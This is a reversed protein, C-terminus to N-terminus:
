SIAHTNVRGALSDSRDGDDIRGDDVGRDEDLVAFWRCRKRAGENQIINIQPVDGSRNADCIPFDNKGAARGRNLTPTLAIDIGAGAGRELELM